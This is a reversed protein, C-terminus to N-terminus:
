SRWLIRSNHLKEREVLSEWFKVILFNLTEVIDFIYKWLLIFYTGLVNIIGFISSILALNSEFNTLNNGYSYSTKLNWLFFNFILVSVHQLCFVHFTNQERFLKSVFSLGVWIAVLLKLWVLFGYFLCHIWM